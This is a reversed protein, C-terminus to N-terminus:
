ERKWRVEDYEVTLEGSTGDIEKVVGSSFSYRYDGSPDHAGDVEAKQGVCWPKVWKDPLLEIM